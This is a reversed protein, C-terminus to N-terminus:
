IFKSLYLIVNLFYHGLRPFKLLNNIKCIWLGHDILWTIFLDFTAKVCKLRLIERLDICCEMFTQRLVLILTCKCDYTFIM